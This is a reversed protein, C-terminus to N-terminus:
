IKGAPTLEIWNINEEQYEKTRGILELFYSNAEQIRGNSSSILMGISQSDFLALYRSEFKKKENANSAPTEKESKHAKTHFWVLCRVNERHKECSLTTQLLGSATPSTKVRLEVETSEESSIGSQIADQFINLSEVVEVISKFNNLDGLGQFFNRFEDNAYELSASTVLDQHSNAKSLPLLFTFAPEELKHLLNRLLKSSKAMKQQPFLSLAVLYYRLSTSTNLYINNKGLFHFFRHFKELTGITM